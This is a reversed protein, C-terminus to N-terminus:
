HAILQQRGHVAGSISELMTATDAAARGGSQEQRLTEELDSNDLSGTLTSDAATALGKNRVCAMTKPSKPKSAHIAFPIQHDFTETSHYNPSRATPTLPEWLTSASSSCM